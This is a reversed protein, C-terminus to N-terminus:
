MRSLEHLHISSHRVIGLRQVRIVCHEDVIQLSVCIVGGALESAVIYHTNWKQLRATHNLPELFPFPNHIRRIQEAAAVVVVAALMLMAAVVAEVVVVVVVATTVLLVAAVVAVVVAV